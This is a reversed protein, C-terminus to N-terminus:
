ADGRVVLTSVATVVHEGESDTVVSEAVVMANGGLTKISTVNLQATLEDGAVIPRSYDFRQEGHVVHTLEIGADEEALLQGLTLEQVVIAFTPPAVLDAYGADRAAEVSLTVPNSSFVARSFERVKERGVLYPNTKEFVRGVLEPNV